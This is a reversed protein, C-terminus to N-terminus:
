RSRKKKKVRALIRDQVSARQKETLGQLTTGEDRVLKATAARVKRELSTDNYSGLRKRLVDEIHSERQKQEVTKHSTALLQYHENMLQATDQDLTSGLGFWEGTLLQDATLGPPIDLLSASIRRTDEDRLLRYVEGARTGRLCLPEHTTAVFRINPFVERLTHVVRIRWQPHLHCGIEDCLVTGRASELDAINATVNMMIDGALATLAQYGDSQDRLEIPGDGSEIFIKGRRRTILGNDDGLDLLKRLGGALVNFTTPDVRQTDAFFKEIDGLPERPDFLNGIRVLQPKHPAKYNPAPPLRTAGYALLPTRPARGSPTFRKQGKSFSLEVPEDPAHSFWARIVGKNSRSTRTVCSGADPIFQSRQQASAFILALAKLVSSKGMGNEGILVLWSEEGGEQSPFTLDVHEIARFNCIEIRQLQSVSERYSQMQQPNGKSGKPTAAARMTAAPPTVPITDSLVPRLREAQKGKAEEFLLQRKVALCEADDALMNQLATEAGDDGSVYAAIAAQFHTAATNRTAVLNSRNLDLLEITIDGRESRATVTGDSNFSLHESPEDLCPDILLPEETAVVDDWTAEEPARKGAVPFHNAKNSNCAPCTLYLNRWESSLWWYHEVDIKGDLGVAKYMPRFHDIHGASTSEVRTECYACKSHFLSLLAQMARDRFPGRWVKSFGRQLWASRRATKRMTEVDAALRQAAKRMAASVRFTSRDVHIM